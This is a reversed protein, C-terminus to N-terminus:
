DLIVFTQAIQETIPLMREAESDMFTFAISYLKRGDDQMIVYYVNRFAPREPIVLRSDTLMASGAPLAVAQTELLTYEIGENEAMTAFISHVVESAAEMDLSLESEQYISSSFLLDEGQLNATVVDIDMQEFIAGIGSAEDGSGIVLNLTANLMLQNSGRTIIHGVPVAYATREGEAVQWGEPMNPLVLAEEIAISSFITDFTERQEEINESYSSFGISYLKTGRYVMYIELNVTRNESGGLILTGQTYLADGLHTEVIYPEVDFVYNSGAAQVLEELRQVLITEPLVIGSDEILVAVASFDLLSGYLEIDTQLDLFAYAADRSEESPSVNESLEMFTEVPLNIWVDPVLLRLDGVTQWEYGAPIAETAEPTVEAETGIRVSELIADFYPSADEWEDLPVTLAISYISNGQSFSYLEMRGEGPSDATAPVDNRMFFSRGFPMDVFNMEEIPLTNGAEALDEAREIYAEDPLVIPTDEIMVVIAHFNTWNIYLAWVRQQNLVNMLADFGQQGAFEGSYTDIMGEPVKIWNRPVVFELEDLNEWRYGEPADDTAEAIVEEIHASAIITEIEERRNAFDEDQGIFAFTYIRTGITTAYVEMRSEVGGEEPAPLVDSFYLTRGFPLDLFAVEDLPASGGQEALTEYREVSVDDPLVVPSDEIMVTMGSVRVWNVFTAYNRQEELLDQLAGSSSVGGNMSLVTETPVNVSVAPVLFALEDLQEWRYGEPADGLIPAPTATPEPSPSPTVTPSAPLLNSGFSLFLGGGAAIIALLAVAITFRRNNNKAQHEKTRRLRRGWRRKPKSTEANATSMQRPIGPTTPSDELTDFKSTSAKSPTQLRRLGSEDGELIAELAAGVQRVSRIRQNREKQLMQQILENLEASAEPCRERIDPAANTLINSLLQMTTNGQFPREGTLMEYLMVGFSWVDARVDVPEGNVAEPPLYDMTGVAMGTGTLREESAVHAVGFDTLRPTGDSALMVNAPKIDRHIVGLHHARSLADALELGMRLAENLPLKGRQHLLQSLDGGGLFETVLFYEEGQQIMDLMKVINPHNLDSLAQGERRFREIVTKDNSITGRLQKIAVFKETHTDLGKYVEGMGGQGLKELVQYRGALLTQGLPNM